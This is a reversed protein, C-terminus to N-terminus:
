SRSSKMGGVASHERVRSLEKIVYRRDAYVPVATGSNLIGAVIEVIGKDFDLIFADSSSYAVLSM